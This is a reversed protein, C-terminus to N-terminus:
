AADGFLVGQALRRAALECYREDTEVGVAKIGRDKAAKLTAGSGAFPDIILQGPAAVVDVLRGMLELPKPSPHATATDRSVSLVDPVGRDAVKPTGKSAHCVLEHQRRFGNGLGMSRKDWVVMGQVRLNCTELAGVLNPWSRWDIFALVNGGEPLLPYSVRAVSRMLWVFGQTTMQDNDLPRDAFRGGRLMAGSSAKGVETRTGSAYPPDMVIAHAETTDAITDLVELCDGHYLTVFDDVYYPTM